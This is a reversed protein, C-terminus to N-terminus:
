HLNHDASHPRCSIHLQVEVASAVIWYDLRWTLFPLPSAEHQKQYHYQEIESMTLNVLLHEQPPLQLEEACILTTEFDGRIRAFM